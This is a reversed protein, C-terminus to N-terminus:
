LDNNDCEDGHCQEMERASHLLQPLDKAIAMLLTDMPCGRLYSCHYTLPKFHNIANIHFFDQYVSPHPLDYRNVHKEALVSQFVRHKEPHELLEALVKVSFYGAHSHMLKIRLIVTTNLIVCVSFIM